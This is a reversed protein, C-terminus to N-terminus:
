QKERISFITNNDLRTLILVHDSNSIVGIKQDDKFLFNERVDCEYQGHVNYYIDGKIEGVPKGEYLVDYTINKDLM